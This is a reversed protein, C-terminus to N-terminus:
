KFGISKEWENLSMENLKGFGEKPVADKALVIYPAVTLATGIEGPKM